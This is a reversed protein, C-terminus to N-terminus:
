RTHLLMWSTLPMDFPAHEPTATGIGDGSYTRTWVDHGAGEFVTLKAAVPPAPLQANYNTVFLGSQRFNPTDNSGVFCWVAVDRAREHGSRPGWGAIPAAAAIQSRGPDLRSLYDFVGNAGHSLGTLDVRSADVRYLALVDEIFRRLVEPDGGGWNNTNGDTRHTQPSVVVMPLAPAWAAEQILRPPGHRLVRDLQSTGNGREGRGHLFVLLPYRHTAGSASYGGPLYEYFGFETITSGRPRATHTGGTDPPLPSAADRAAEDATAAGGDTAADDTAADLGADRPSADPSAADPFGADFRSDADLTGADLAPPPLM